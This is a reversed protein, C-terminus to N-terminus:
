RGLLAAARAALEGLAVMEVQSDSRLKWELKDDALGRQAGRCVAGPVRVASLM